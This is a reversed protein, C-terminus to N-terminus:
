DRVRVTVMGVGGDVSIDVRESANDFGDTEWREDGFATFGNPVSVGGVGVEARVKADFGEPVTVTLSGVGGDIEVSYDGTDPLDVTTSGVGVDINLNSLMIERLDLDVTGVGTDVILDIPISRALNLDWLYDNNISFPWFSVNHQGHQEIRVSVRDDARDLEAEPPDERRAHSIDGAVLSQGGAPSAGVKLRAVGPGLFVRAEEADDLPVDIAAVNDSAQRDATTAGSRAVPGDASRLFWIGGVTLSLSVLVVIAQGIRSSGLVFQLGIAILLIPWLRALMWWSGADLIGLTQMLWVTGVAMLILPFVIGRREKMM